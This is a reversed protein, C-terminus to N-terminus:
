PTVEFAVQVRPSEELRLQMLRKNSTIYTANLRMINRRSTLLWTVNAQYVSQQNFIVAISQILPQSGLLCGFLLSQVSDVRVNVIGKVISSLNCRNQGRNRRNDSTVTCENIHMNKSIFDGCKGWYRKMCETQSQKSWINNTAQIDKVTANLNISFVTGRGSIYGNFNSSVISGVGNGLYIYVVDDSLCSMPRCLPIIESVVM